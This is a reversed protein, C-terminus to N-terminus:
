LGIVKREIYTTLLGVGVDRAASGVGRLFGLIKQRAILRGGEPTGDDALERVASTLEAKQDGAYQQVLRLLERDTENLTVDGAIEDAVVATVANIIRNDQNIVLRPSESHGVGSAQFVIGPTRHQLVQPIALNILDELQGATTSSPLVDTLESELRHRISLLKQEREQKMDVQLRRAEKAYRTLMPVIDREPVEHQRLIVEAAGPSAVCASLLESFSGFEDEISPTVGGPEGRLEFITGARTRVQDLRVDVRSVRTLYDRFLQLLRDTEAAWLQANPVYVRFLLGGDSRSAVEQAIITVESNRNYTYVEIGVKALREHVLARMEDPFASRFADNDGEDYDYQGDDFEPPGNYLNAHIFVAHPLRAILALLVDSVAAYDPRSLVSYTDIAFKALVLTVEYDRFVECITLWNEPSSRLLKRKYRRGSQVLASLVGEHGVEGLLLVIPEKGSAEAAPQPPVAAM